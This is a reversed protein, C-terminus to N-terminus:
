MNVFNELQITNLRAFVDDWVSENLWTWSPDVIFNPPREVLYQILETIRAVRAITLSLDVPSTNNM